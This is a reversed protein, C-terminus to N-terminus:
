RASTSRSRTARSACRTRMCRRVLLIVCKGSGQDFGWQHHPCTVARGDFRAGTRPMDAHPCRGRYAKLEGSAPWLLLVSKRGIRFLGMGGERVADTTCLTTFNVGHGAM